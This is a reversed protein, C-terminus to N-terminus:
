PGYCNFGGLEAEGGCGPASCTAQIGADGRAGCLEDECDLTCSSCTSTACRVQNSACDGDWLVVCVEGIGCVDCRNAAASDPTTDLAMADIVHGDDDGCSGLVVLLALILARM